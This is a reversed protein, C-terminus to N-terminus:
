EGSTLRGAIDRTNRLRTLWGRLQNAKSPDRKVINRYHNEVLNALTDIDGNAQGLLRKMTPVGIVGGQDFALRALGPDLNDAGLADWNDRKLIEQAKEWTFGPQNVEPHFAANIGFRVTAGNIDTIGGDNNENQRWQAAASEFGATEAAADPRLEEIVRTKSENIDSTLDALESGVRPQTVPNPREPMRNHVYAEALQGRSLGTPTSPDDKSTELLHFLLGNMNRTSRVIDEPVAARYADIAKQSSGIPSENSSLKHVKAGKAGSKGPVYAAIDLIGPKPQPRTM